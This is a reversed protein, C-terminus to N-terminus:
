KGGTNTIYDTSKQAQGAAHVVLKRDNKLAKLWSQIYAAQNKVTEQEIGTIGCLFSAGMEAVLEEKAYSEQGPSHFNTRALRKEHGTSHTLEHFLAAYYHEISDFYKAQPMEVTDKSPIYCPNNVGFNIKPARPMEDIIRDAEDLPNVTKEETKPEKLGETQEFNFVKYYRLFPVSDTKKLGDKTTEDTEVELWKWFVVVSSREGERVSGGLDQIQKWTLWYPSKRNKAALLMTNLGRYPKKTVMNMPMNGKWTMKWPIVGNELHKVIQETIIDYVKNM